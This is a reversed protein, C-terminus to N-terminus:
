FFKVRGVAEEGESEGDAAEPAGGAMKAKQAEDLAEKPFRARLELLHKELRALDSRMTEIHALYENLRALLWASGLSPDDQFQLFREICELKMGNARCATIFQLRKLDEPGYLRQGGAGRRPKPMVGKEEYFRIRPAPCGAAAALEGIKM